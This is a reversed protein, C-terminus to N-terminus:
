RLEVNEFTWPIRMTRGPLATTVRLEAISADEPVSFAAQWVRRGGDENPSRVRCAHVGGKDDVIVVERTRLDVRDDTEIVVSSRGCSVLLFPTTESKMRVDAKREPARVVTTDLDTPFELVLVGKVTALTRMTKKPLRSVTAVFTRAPSRWSAPAPAPVTVADAFSAGDGDVLDAVEVRVVIPKLGADWWATFELRLEERADAGFDSSRATAASALEVVAREALCRPRRAPDGREIVVDPVWRPVVGGHARCLGVIAETPLADKLELTVPDNKGANGLRIPVGAQKAIEAAVEALPRKAAFATVRAAPSEFPKVRERREIEGAVALLRGKLPEKAEAAADRIAKLAGPGLDALAREADTQSATADALRKLLPEAPDQALLLLGVLAIRM